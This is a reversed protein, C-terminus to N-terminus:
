SCFAEQEREKRLLAPPGKRILRRYRTSSSWLPSQEARDMGYLALILAFGHRGNQALGKFLWRVSCGCREMRASHVVHRGYIRRRGKRPEGPFPPCRLLLTGM